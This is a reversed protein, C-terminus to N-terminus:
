SFRQIENFISILQQFLIVKQVNIRQVVDLLHMVSATIKLWKFTVHTEGFFRATNHSVVIGSFPSRLQSATM